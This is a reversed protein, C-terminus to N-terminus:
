KKQQNSFSVSPEQVHGAGRFFHTHGGRSFGRRSIEDSNLFFIRFQLDIRSYAWSGAVKSAEGEKQCFSKPKDNPFDTLFKLVDKIRATKARLWVLTGARTASGGLLRGVQTTNLCACFFSLQRLFGSEEASM